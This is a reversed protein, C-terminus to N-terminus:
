LTRRRQAVCNVDSSHAAGTLREIKPSNFSSRNDLEHKVEIRVRKTSQKKLHETASHVPIRRLSEAHVRGAEPHKQLMLISKPRQAAENSVAVFHKTKRKLCLLRNKIKDSYTKTVLYMLAIFGMSAVSSVVMLDVLDDDM